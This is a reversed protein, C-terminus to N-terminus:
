WSLVPKDTIGQSAPRVRGHFTSAQAPFAAQWKRVFILACRPGRAVSRLAFGPQGKRLVLSLNGRECPMVCNIFHSM